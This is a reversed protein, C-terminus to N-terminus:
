DFEGKGFFLIFMTALVLLGLSGAFISYFLHAFNFSIFDNSARAWKFWFITFIGLTLFISSILYGKWFEKM